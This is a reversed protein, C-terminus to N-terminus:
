KMGKHRSLGKINDIFYAVQLFLVNLELMRLQSFVKSSNIVLDLIMWQNCNGDTYQIEKRTKWIFNM